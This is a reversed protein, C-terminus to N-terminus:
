TYTIPARPIKVLTCDAHKLPIFGLTLSNLISVIIVTTCGYYSKFGPIYMKVPALRTPAHTLSLSVDDFSELRPRVM